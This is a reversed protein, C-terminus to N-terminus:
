DKIIFGGEQKYLKMKSIVTIGRLVREPDEKLDLKGSIKFSGNESILQIDINYYRSIRKLLSELTEENFNIYGYTWAIFNEPHAVKVVVIKNSTESYEGRESQKLIINEQKMNLTPMSSLSVKGELLLASYSNGQGYAQIDFKTGLVEVKLRDTKVYFPKQANKTVEFYGEGQLYVERHNGTFVPPYVMRSGSNLWVKTGDSLILSAYKGYPIIMQNFQQEKVPQIVNSTDNINVKAGDASYSIRSNDSSIKIKKGDSLILQSEKYDVQNSSVFRDISSEKEENNKNYYFAITGLGVLLIFSAAIRLINRIIRTKTNSWGSGIDNGDSETESFAGVIGSWVKQRQGQTSFHPENEMAELLQIALDIKKEQTPFHAKLEAIYEDSGSEAKVKAIFENDLLFDSFDYNDKTKQKM